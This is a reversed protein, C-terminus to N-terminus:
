VIQLREGSLEILINSGGEFLGIQNVKEVDIYKSVM